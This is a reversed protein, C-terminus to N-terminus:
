TKWKCNLSKKQTRLETKWTRSESRDNRSKEAAREEAKWAKKRRRLKKKEGIEKM